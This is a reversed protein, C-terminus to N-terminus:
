TVLGNPMSSSSARMRAMAPARGAGVLRRGDADSPVDYVDRVPDDGAAIDAEGLGLPPQQLDQDAVGAPEDALALEEVVDPARVVLRLGVVQALVHRLQASARLRDRADM